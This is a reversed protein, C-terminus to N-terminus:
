ETGGHHGTLWRIGLFWVPCYVLAAVVAGVAGSVMPPLTRVAAAAILGVGIAVGAAVPAVLFRVGHGRWARLDDFLLLAPLIAALWGSAGGFTGIGILALIGDIVALAVLGVLTGLAAAVVLEGLSKVRGASDRRPFVQTASSESVV